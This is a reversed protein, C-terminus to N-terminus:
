GEGKSLVVVEGGAKSVTEVAKETAYKVIVKLAINLSGSGLLKNYGHEGLDLVPVGKETRLRGELRLKEVLEPLNSVNIARIREWHEPGRPTFGRKGYWDPFYKLVWTWKHKHYGVAGKGGRSGSKRHQGVSGWGMTRSRGRLRRSKRERRVVM